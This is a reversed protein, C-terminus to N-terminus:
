NKSLKNTWVNKNLIFREQPKSARVDFFIINSWRSVAYPCDGKSAVTWTGKVFRHSLAQMCNALFDCKVGSLSILYSLLGRLSLLTVFPEFFCSIPYGYSGLIMVSM